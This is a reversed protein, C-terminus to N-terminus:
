LNLITCNAKGVFSRVRWYHISTMSHEMFQYSNKTLMSSVPVGPWSAVVYSLHLFLICNVSISLTVLFGFPSLCAKKVLLISLKPYMISRGLYFFSRIYGKFSNRDVLSPIEFSPVSMAARHNAGQVTLFGSRNLISCPFFSGPFRLIKDASWLQFLFKDLHNCSEEFIFIWQINDNRFNPSTSKVLM